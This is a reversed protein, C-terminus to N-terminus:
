VLTHLWRRYRGAVDELEIKGALLQKAANRRTEVSTLADLAMGLHNVDDVWLVGGRDTELYGAEKNMICPTGSGQANALKCNSKWNRAAYGKADRFAVVIDLDALAPPNVIFEWGRKDCEARLVPGWQGLYDGGEYGVKQVKERIPNIRMKPRAHHPLALVPIGFPSCDVAMAKTPTVIAKPKLLAVENRLWDMCRAEDWENGSPQPWADVVDWVIPVNAQRLRWLLDPRHRKVIVALDYGSVRAANREVTAMIAAGM